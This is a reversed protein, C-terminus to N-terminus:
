SETSNLPISFYKKLKNEVMKAKRSNRSVKLTYLGRMDLISAPDMDKMKMFSRIKPVVREDFKAEFFLDDVINIYFSEKQNLPNKGAVREFLKVDHYHTKRMEESSAHTLVAWHPHETTIKRWWVDIDPRGGQFWDHPTLSMIHAHKPAGEVAILVAHVWFLEIERLTKFHYSIKEGETLAGFYSQYVPARYVTAIRSICDLQEQIWFFSLAVKKKDVTIVEEKRLQSLAKYFGQMTCKESAAVKELLDSKNMSGKELLMVIGERISTKQMDNM